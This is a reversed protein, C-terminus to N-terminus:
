IGGNGRASQSPMKGKKEGTIKNVKVRPDFTKYQIRGEYGFRKLLDKMEEFRDLEEMTIIDPNQKILLGVIRTFRVPFEYTLVKDGDVRIDVNGKKYDTTFHDRNTTVPKMDKLHKFQYRSNLKKMQQAAEKGM